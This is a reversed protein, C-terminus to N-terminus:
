EFDQRILLLCFFLFLNEVFSKHARPASYDEGALSKRLSLYLTTVNNVIAAMGDPLCSAGASATFVGTNQVNM